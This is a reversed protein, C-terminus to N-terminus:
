SASGATPAATASTAATAEGPEPPLPRSRARALVAIGAAAVTVVLVGAATLTLLDPRVISQGRLAQWTVLALLGAYGAGSIQILRSRTAEARLVPLRRSLPVLALALLPLLQLAHMGIFHPIRLDGGVTSWGLLPLGPGGDPVGVNHAGAIDTVRGTQQEATPSTMLSGLGLGALSITLGLRLAWTSAADAYRDRLVLIVWILNAVFLVLITSGMIGYLTTDLPTAVNFHSRQGRAAQGAIIAMELTSAAAIATGLWWGLRRSRRQLSYLWAWTVGYITFSIAFKLPKAWLPAGVLIRTDVALAITTAVTLLASVAAFVLLPRHWGVTRSGLLSM